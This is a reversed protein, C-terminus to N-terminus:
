IWNWDTRDPGAALGIQRTFAVYARPRRQGAAYLRLAPGTHSARGAKSICPHAAFIARTQQPDIGVLAGDDAIPGQEFQDDLAGVRSAQRARGHQAAARRWKRVNPGIWSASM